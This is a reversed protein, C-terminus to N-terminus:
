LVIQTAVPDLASEFVGIVNLGTQILLATLSDTEHQQPQRTQNQHAVM